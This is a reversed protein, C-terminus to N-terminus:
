IGVFAPFSAGDGRWHRTSGAVRLPNEFGFLADGDACSAHAFGPATTEEDRVRVRRGIM